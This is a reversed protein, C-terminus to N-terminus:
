ESVEQSIKTEPDWNKMLIEMSNEISYDKDQLYKKELKPKSIQALPPRKTGM